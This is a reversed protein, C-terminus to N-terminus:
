LDLTWTQGVLEQGFSRHAQEAILRFAAAEYIRRASVLIDNTWLTLRRYGNARARAICAAVLAAGIGLGRAGPEVYLLRLKATLPEAGRMLFISGAIRGNHEAIWVQEKAADFHAVFEAVIGAVLAEYTWDWGYEEAYLVAQRHIVEGLDGVKPSRLTFADSRPSPAETLILQIQQMAGILRDTARADLPALLDQMQAVTGQELAAFAERGAGTLSLLRHKAHEPSPRSTVLAQERFRALIRSLHAKDMGLARSLEAATEANAAALEYLVRAESLSFPSRSLHEDLLGIQHTYFRNFQRLQDVATIQLEPPM